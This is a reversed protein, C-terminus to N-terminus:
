RNPDHELHTCRSTKDLVAEFRCSAFGREDETRKFRWAYNFNIRLATPAEPAVPPGARCLLVLAVSLMGLAQRKM